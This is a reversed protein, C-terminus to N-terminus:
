RHHSRIVSSDEIDSIPVLAGITNGRGLEKEVQNLGDIRKLNVLASPRIDERKM